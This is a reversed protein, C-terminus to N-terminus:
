LSTLSTKEIQTSFYFRIHFRTIGKTKQGYTRLKEM